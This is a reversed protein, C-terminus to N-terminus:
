QFLLIQIYIHKFLFLFFSGDTILKKILMYVRNLLTEDINSFEFVAGNNSQEGEVNHILLLRVVKEKESHSLVNINKVIYKTEM